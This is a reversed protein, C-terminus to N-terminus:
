EEGGDPTEASGGIDSRAFADFLDKRSEVGLKKAARWLLVGVSSASIGLEYAILKNTHGLAAYAVVQRERLSLERPRPTQAHNERAVVYRKGDRDFHDVLSWKANVMGRWSSVAGDPDRRRMKGRAGEIAGVAERLATLATKEAAEADAHEVRGSPTLVASGTSPDRKAENSLRRVLRYGSALHAALKSLRQKTGQSVRDEASLKATVFCGIGSPDLGNIFLVDTIGWERFMKAAPNITWDPGESATRCAQSRFVWRVREPTSREIARMISEDSRAGVSVFEQLRLRNVDTADYFFASCGLGHDLTPTATELLNRLWGAPEQDVQYAGEIISIIDKMGGPFSTLM